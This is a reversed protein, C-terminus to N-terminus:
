VHLSQYDDVHGFPKMVFKVNIEERLSRRHLKRKMVKTGEKKTSRHRSISFAASPLDSLNRHKM